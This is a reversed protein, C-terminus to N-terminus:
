ILQKREPPLLLTEDVTVAARPLRDMFEYVLELQAPSLGHSHELFEYHAGAGVAAVISRDPANLGLLKAKDGLIGWVQQGIEADTMQPSATVFTILQELREGHATRQASYAADHAEAHQTRYKKLNIYLTKRNMGLARATFGVGQGNAIMELAEATRLAAKTQRAKNIAKMRQKKKM